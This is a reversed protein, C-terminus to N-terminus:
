VFVRQWGLDHGGFGSESEGHDLDESARRAARSRGRRAPGYRDRGPHRGRLGNAGLFDSGGSAQHIWTPPIPDWLPHIIPQLQLFLVM